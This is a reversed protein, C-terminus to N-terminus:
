TCYQYPVLTTEKSCTLKPLYSLLRPSWKVQAIYMGMKQFMIYCYKPLGPRGDEYFKTYVGDGSQVISYSEEVVSLWRTIDSYLPFDLSFKNHTCKCHVLGHVKLLFRMTHRHITPHSCYKFHLDQGCQFSLFSVYILDILWFLSGSM